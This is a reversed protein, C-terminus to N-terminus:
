ASITRGDPLTIDGDANGEGNDSHDEVEVTKNMVADMIPKFTDHNKISNWQKDTLNNICTEVEKDTALRPKDTILYRWNNFCGDTHLLFCEKDHTVICPVGVGYAHSSTANADLVVVAFLERPIMAGAKLEPADVLLSFVEMMSQLYETKWGAAKMKAEVEAQQERTFKRKKEKKEDKERLKRTIESCTRL